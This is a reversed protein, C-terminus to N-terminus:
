EPPEDSNKRDVSKVIVASYKWLFIVGWIAIPVWCFIKTVQLLYIEPFEFKTFAMTILIIGVFYYVMTSICSLDRIPRM